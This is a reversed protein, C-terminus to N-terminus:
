TDNAPHVPTFFTNSKKAIYYFLSMADGIDVTWDLDSHARNQEEETLTSKKAVHYFLMMADTIDTQGDGNVDGAPHAYEDPIMETVRAYDDLSFTFSATDGNKNWYTERCTWVDGDHKVSVRMDIYDDNAPCPYVRVLDRGGVNEYLSSMKIDETPIDFFAQITHSANELTWYIFAKGSEDKLFKNTPVSSTNLLQSVFGVIFDINEETAKGYFPMRRTRDPITANYDILMAMYTFAVSCADIFDTKGTSNESTLRGITFVYRPENKEDAVRTVIGQFQYLSEDDTMFLASTSDGHRKLSDWGDKLYISEVNVRVEGGWYKHFVLTMSDTGEIRMRDYNQLPNDTRKAFAVTSMSFVTLGSLIVALVRKFHASFKNKM